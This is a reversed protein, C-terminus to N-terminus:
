AASGGALRLSLRAAVARVHEAIVAPTRDGPFRYSPGHAHIAAVVTGDSGFVPAAVSSAEPAFEGRLWISGADRITALRARIVDPDTVTADTFRALPQALIEDVDAPPLHALIVLGSPTVHGPIEAGTWDRVQVEGPPTTQALYRVMAGERVSLGAAEGTLLSLEALFPRALEPLVRTPGTAAGIEEALRGLRYPGGNNSQEVADLGELTSLLRSVTSKPLRTRAALETVRAPGTTLARLIAVAREVSQVGSV